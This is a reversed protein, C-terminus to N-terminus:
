NSELLRILAAREEDDVAANFRQELAEVAAAPTLEEIHPKGDGTYIELKRGTLRERTHETCRVAVLRGRFPSRPDGWGFRYSGEVATHSIDEDVAVYMLRWQESSPPSGRELLQIHGEETVAVRQEWRHHRVPEGAGTGLPLPVPARITAGWGVDALWRRDDDVPRALVFLHTPPLPKKRKAPDDKDGMRAVTSIRVEPRFGMADLLAAFLPVQEPCTGGRGEVVIRRELTAIDLPVLRGLSMTANNFSIVDAQARLLQQLASVTPEWGQEPLGLFRLYAAVDVDHPEMVTFWLMPLHSVRRSTRSAFSSKSTVPITLLASQIYKLYSLGILISIDSRLIHHAIQPFFHTVSTGRTEDIADALRLVIAWALYSLNRAPPNPCEPLPRGSGGM